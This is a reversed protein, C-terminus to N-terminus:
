KPGDFGPLDSITITNSSSPWLLSVTIEWIPLILWDDRFCDFQTIYGSIGLQWFYSLIYDGFNPLLYGPM